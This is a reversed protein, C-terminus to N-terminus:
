AARRRVVFAIALAGVLLGGLLAVLQAGPSTTVAGAIAAGAVGALMVVIVAAMRVAMGGLFLSLFSVPHGRRDLPQAGLVADPTVPGYIHPYVEDGVREDRVEADLREPAITLLLLPERVGRYHRDFVSPVQDRRSAHIFGEETLSRGVMSTTYRGTDRARKWDAHTAIHFIREPQSM